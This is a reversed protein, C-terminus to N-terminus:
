HSRRLARAAFEAIKSQLVKGYFVGPDFDRHDKYSALKEGESEEAPQGETDPNKEIAGQLTEVRDPTKMAEQVNKKFDAAAKDADAAVLRESDERMTKIRQDIERQLSPDQTNSKISELVSIKYENSVAERLLDYMANKAEIQEKLQDRYRVLFYLKVGTKYHGEMPASRKIRAEEQALDTTRRDASGYKEHIEKVLEQPDIGVRKFGSSINKISLNVDRLHRRAESGARIVKQISPNSRVDAMTKMTDYLQSFDPSVRTGFVVDRGPTTAWYDQLRWYIARYFQDIISQAERDTLEMKMQPKGQEDVDVFEETADMQHQVRLRATQRDALKILLENKRKLYSSLEKNFINGAEAVPVKRGRINVTADKLAGLRALEKARDTAEQMMMRVLTKGFPGDVVIQNGKILDDYESRREGYMSEIIDWDNLRIKPLDELYKRPAAKLWTDIGQPDVREDSDAYAATKRMTGVSRGSEDFKTKVSWFPDTDKPKLAESRTVPDQGKDETGKQSGQNKSVLSDIKDFISKMKDSSAKVDNRWRKVANWDEAKKRGAETDIADSGKEGPKAKGSFRSVTDEVVTRINEDGSLFYKRYKMYPALFSDAHKTLLAIEEDTARKTGESKLATRQTEFFRYIKSLTEFVYDLVNLTKNELEKEQDLLDNLTVADKVENAQAKFTDHYEPTAADSSKFSAKPTPNLDIFKKVNKVDGHKTEKVLGHSNSDDSRGEMKVSQAISKVVSDRKDPDVKGGRKEYMSVVSGAVYESPVIKLLFGRMKDKEEEVMKRYKAKTADDVSLANVEELIKNSEVIHKNAADNAASVQSDIERLRLEYPMTWKEVSLGKSFQEEVGNKFADSNLIDDLAKKVDGDTLTVKVEQESFAKIKDEISPLAKESKERQLAYISDISEVLKAVTEQKFKLAAIKQESRNVLAEVYERVGPRFKSLKERARKLLSETTDAEVKVEQLKKAVDTKTKAWEEPDGVVRSHVLHEKAGAESLRREITSVLEVLEDKDTYTIADADAVDLLLRPYMKSKGLIAAEVNEQIRSWLRSIERPEHKGLSIDGTETKRTKMRALNKEAEAVRTEVAKIQGQLSEVGKTSRPDSKPQKEAEELKNRLSGLLAKDRAIEVSYGEVTEPIARKQIKRIWASFDEWEKVEDLEKVKKEYEETIEKKKEEPMGSLTKYLRETDPDRHRKAHAPYVKEMEQFEKDKSLYATLMKVRRSLDKYENEEEPTLEGQGGEDAPESRGEFEKLKKVLDDYNPLDDRMELLDELTVSKLLADVRKVLNDAYVYDEQKSLDTVKGKSAGQEKYRRELEDRRKAYEDRRRVKEITTDLREKVQHFVKSRARAAKEPYASVVAEELQKGPDRLFAALNALFAKQELLESSGLQAQLADIEVKLEQSKKEDKAFRGGLLAAMRDKNKLVHDKLSASGKLMTKAIAEDLKFKYGRSPQDTGPEQEQSPLAKIEEPSLLDKQMAVSKTFDFGGRRIENFFADVGDPDIFFAELYVPGSKKLRKTYLEGRPRNKPIKMKAADRPLAIERIAAVKAMFSRVMDALSAVKTAAPATQEVEKKTPLAETKTVKESQRKAKQESRSKDQEELRRLRTGIMSRNLATNLLHRQIREPDFKKVASTLSRIAELVRSMESFAPGKVSEPKGKPGLSMQYSKQELFDILKSWGTVWTNPDNAQFNGVLMEEAEDVKSVDDHAPTEQKPATPAYMVTTGRDWLTGATDTRAFKNLAKYTADSRKALEGIESFDLKSALEDKISSVWELLDKASAYVAKIPGEDKKKQLSTLGRVTIDALERSEEAKNLAVIMAGMDGSLSLKSSAKDAEIQSMVAKEVLDLVKRTDEEGYSPSFREMFAKRSEEVTEELSKFTKGPVPRKQRSVIDRMSPLARATLDESVARAQKEAAVSTEKLSRIRNVENRAWTPDEQSQDISRQARVVSAAAEQAEREAKELAETMPKVEKSDLDTPFMSFLAEREDDTLGAAGISDRIAKVRANYEKADIKTGGEEIFTSLSGLAKKLKTDSATASVLYNKLGAVERHLEGANKASILLDGMLTTKDHKEQKTLWVELQKKSRGLLKADQSDEQPTNGYFEAHRKDEPSLPAGSQEKKKAEEHAKLKADRITGLLRYVIDKKEMEAMGSSPAETVSRSLSKGMDNIERKGLFFRVARLVKHLDANKGLDEQTLPPYRLPVTGKRTKRNRKEKEYDDLTLGEPPLEFLSLEEATLPEAGVVEPKNKDVDVKSTEPVMINKMIRVAVSSPIGIKASHKKEAWDVVKRLEEVAKRRDSTMLKGFETSPDEQAMKAADRIAGMMVDGLGRASELDDVLKDTWEGFLAKNRVPDYGAGGVLTKLQEVGAALKEAFNM